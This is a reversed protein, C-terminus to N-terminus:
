WARVSHRSIDGGGRSFHWHSTIQSKTSTEQFPFSISAPLPLSITKGILASVYKLGTCTESTLPLALWPTLRLPVDSEPRVAQAGRPSVRERRAPWWHFLPPPTDWWVLPARRKWCRASIGGHFCWDASTPGPTHYWLCADYRTDSAM